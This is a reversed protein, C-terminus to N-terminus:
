KVLVKKGNIIYLGPKALSNVRLGTITFIAKQAPATEISEIPTADGSLEAQSAGGLYMLSFNDVVVWDQGVANVKEIGVRLIGDKGVKVTISNHYFGAKFFNDATALQDAGKFSGGFTSNGPTIDIGLVALSDENLQVSAINNLETAYKGESSTAYLYAYVQQEKEGNLIAYSDATGGGHRLFGQCSLVYTGEPLGTLEQYMNFAGSNWVEGCNGPQGGGTGPQKGKWETFNHNQVAGPEEVYGDEDPEYTMGDVNFQPNLIMATFDVPNEDSANEWGKPMRILALVENAEQIFEEMAKNDLTLYAADGMNVEEIVEMVKDYRAKLDADAEEAKEWMNNATEYLDAIKQQLEMNKAIENYQARLLEKMEMCEDESHSKIDKIFAQVDKIVKEITNYEGDTIASASMRAELQAIEDQLTVVWADSGSGEYVLKFNDFIVWQHGNDVRVGVTLNGPEKLQISFKNTYDYNEGDKKNMFHWASGTMSNPCWLGNSGSPNNDSMWQVEGADNVVEYLKEETGYDTVNAFVQIKETGDPLVAYLEAPNYGADQVRYFGQVSLTYLGAPVNYVTQYMSFASMFNEALGDEEDPAEQCLEANNNVGNGYNSGWWPSNGTTSWGSFNKNFKPNNLLYSVDDGPQMEGNYKGEIEAMGAYIMDIETRTWECAEYAENLSDYYDELEGALDPNTERYEEIKEYVDEMRQAFVRYDSITAKLANMANQISDSWLQCDEDSLQAAEALATVEEYLADYADIVAQNGYVNLSGYEENLAAVKDRLAIQALTLETKGYYKLSFNDMALWNITKDSDYRIGFTFAGGETTFSLEFHEPANNGTAVPIEYSEGTAPCNAFLYVGKSDAKSGQQRTAIMDVGLIYLGEPLGVTQQAYGSGNLQPDWTWTELFNQITVGNSSYSASQVQNNVGTLSITWGDYTGDSFDSNLAIGMEFLDIPDEATAGELLDANQAVKLWGVAKMIEAYAANLQEITASPDDYVKQAKDCAAKVTPESEYYDVGSMGEIDVDLWFWNYFQMRANYLTADYLTWTTYAENGYAYRPTKGTIEETIPDIVDVSDVIVSGYFYLRSDFGYDDHIGQSYDDPANDYTALIYEQAENNWIMNSPVMGFKGGPAFANTLEIKGGGLDTLGWAHDGQRNQGDVWAKKAGDCDVANWNGNILDQFRVGEKEVEVGTEDKIKYTSVAFRVQRAEEKTDKASARTGWNNGQGYFYEDGESNTVSLYYVTTGDIKVSTAKTLEPEDFQAWSAASVLIASLLTFLKRM